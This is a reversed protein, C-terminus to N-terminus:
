HGRSVEFGASELARNVEAFTPIEKLVIYRM